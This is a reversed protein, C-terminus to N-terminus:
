WSSGVLGGQAGKEEVRKGLGKEKRVTREQEERKGGYDEKM